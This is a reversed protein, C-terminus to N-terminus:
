LFKKLDFELFFSHWFKIKSDFLINKFFLLLYTKKKVKKNFIQKYNLRETFNEITVEITM